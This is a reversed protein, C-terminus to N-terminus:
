QGSINDQPSQPADSDGQVEGPEASSETSPTGAVVSLTDSNGYSMVKVVLAGGDAGTVPQAPKGDVRDILDKIMTVDGEIVAKKFIQDTLYELYTKKKGEPVEKLKRKIAEVVSVSGEPRGPGGPNGKAFLGKEDRIRNTETKNGIEEM